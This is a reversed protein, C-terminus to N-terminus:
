DKEATQPSWLSIRRSVMNEDEVTVFYDGNEDRETQPLDSIAVDHRVETGDQAETIYSLTADSPVQDGDIYVKVSDAYRTMDDTVHALWAVDYGDYDCIYCLFYIPEGNPQPDAEWADVHYANRSCDGYRLFFAEQATKDSGWVNFECVLPSKEPVDSVLGAEVSDCLFEYVARQGNDYRERTVAHQFTGCATLGVLVVMGLVLSCAGAHPCRRALQFLVTLVVLVMVAVGFSEVAAPIYASVETVWGVNQYKWSLAIMFAPGALMVFGLLFLCVAQRKTLTPRGLLLFAVCVIALLLAWVVDGALIKQIEVGASLPENLPFGGAMQYWWTSLIKGPDMSVAVGDYGDGVTNLRSSAVHYFLAVLEGALFPLGLRVARWFRPELLLALVGLMLIYTYGIEYTGCTYFTLFAGLLAWRIHGSKHLAAMCLGALFAPLPVMQPLAEYSYMGNMSYDSWLCLMLPFLAFLAGGLRKSGTAKNVLLGLLAADVLTHGIIFLRYRDINGKFWVRVPTPLSSFPFFRSSQLTLAKWINGLEETFMDWFGGHSLRYYTTLNNIQDDGGLPALRTVKLYGVAAVLAVALLTWWFWRTCTIKRATERLKIQEKKVPNSEGRVHEADACSNRSRPM